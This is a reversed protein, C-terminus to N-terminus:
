DQLNLRVCVTRMRLRDFSAGRGQWAANGGQSNRSGKSGEIFEPSLTLDFPHDPFRPAQGLRGFSFYTARSGRGAASKQGRGNRQARLVKRSEPGTHEELVGPGYHGSPFGQVSGRRGWPKTPWPVSAGIRGRQRVVGSRERCSPRSCNHPLHPIHSCIRHSSEERRSNYGQDAVTRKVFSGSHLHIRDVKSPIRSTAAAKPTGSHIGAPV